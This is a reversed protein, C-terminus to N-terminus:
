CALLNRQCKVSSCVAQTNGAIVKIYTMVEKKQRRKERAMEFAEKTREYSTKKLQKKKM